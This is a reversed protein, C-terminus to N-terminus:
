RAAARSGAGRSSADYPQYGQTEYGAILMQGKPGKVPSGDENLRTFMGGVMGAADRVGRVDKIEDLTAEPM